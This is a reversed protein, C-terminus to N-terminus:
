APCTPLAVSGTTPKGGASDCAHVIGLL